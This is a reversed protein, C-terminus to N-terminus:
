VMFRGATHQSVTPSKKPIGHISMEDIINSLNMQKEITILNWFRILDLAM